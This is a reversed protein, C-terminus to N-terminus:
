GLLLLSLARRHTHLARPTTNASGAWKDLQHLMWVLLLCLALALLRCTAARGLAWSGWQM